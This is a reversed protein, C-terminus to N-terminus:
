QKEVNMHWIPELLLEGENRLCVSNKKICDTKHGLSLFM